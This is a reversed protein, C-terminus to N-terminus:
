NYLKLFLNDASKSMDEPGDIDTPESIKDPNNVLVPSSWQTGTWKSQLPYYSGNIYRKWQAFVEGDSNLLVVPQIDPVTNTPHLRQPKQWKSQLFRSYFIDDNSGDNGSWVILPINNNDIIIMPYISGALDASVVQPEEKQQGMISMARISYSGDEVATWAIWKTGDAATDIAPHLNDANDDTLQLPASWKKDKLSSLFIESRLGDSQAWVLDAKTISNKVDSVLPRCYGQYTILFIFFITIIIQIVSTKM